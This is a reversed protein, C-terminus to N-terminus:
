NEKEKKLNDFYNGFLDGLTTKYEEAPDIVLVKNKSFYRKIKPDKIVAGERSLCDFSVMPMSDLGEETLGLMELFEEFSIIKINVGNESAEKVHKTRSSQKESGDENFSKINKRNFLCNFLYM